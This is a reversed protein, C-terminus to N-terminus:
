MPHNKASYQKCPHQVHMRAVGCAALGDCGLRVWLVVGEVAEVAGGGGLCMPAQWNTSSSCKQERSVRRTCSPARSTTIWFPGSVAPPPPASDAFPPAPTPAAPAPASRRRSPSTRSRTPAIPLSRARASNAAFCRSCSRPFSSFTRIHATPCPPHPETKPAVAGNLQQRRMVGRGGVLADVGVLGVWGLGGLGGGCLSVMSCCLSTRSRGWAQAARAARRAKVSSVASAVLRPLCVRESWSGPRKMRRSAAACRASCTKGARPSPLLLKLRYPSMHLARVDIPLRRSLTHSFCGSMRASSILLRSSTTSASAPSWPSRSATLSARRPSPPPPAATPPQTPHPSRAELSEAQVVGQM